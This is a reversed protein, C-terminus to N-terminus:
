STFSSVTFQLDIEQHDVRKEGMLNTFLLQLQDKFVNRQQSRLIEPIDTSVSGGNKPAEGKGAELDVLM